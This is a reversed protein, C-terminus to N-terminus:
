FLYTESKVNSTECFLHISNKDIFRADCTLNLLLVFALNM